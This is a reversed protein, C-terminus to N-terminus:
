FDRMKAACFMFYFGIVISFIWNYEKPMISFGFSFLCFGLLFTLNLFISRIM